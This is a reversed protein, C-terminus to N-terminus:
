PVKLTTSADAPEDQEIDALQEIGTKTGLVANPLFIVCILAIVAFPISILFVEGVGQGYASEVIDRVPDSLTDINPLAGETLGSASRAIGSEQLGNEIETDVRASLAAGLMTVGLVGGLSRFFAAASSAAGIERVDTANQVVLVLNQLLMGLALGVLPLALFLVVINTDVRLTSLLISAVTLLSAGTILWPKWHGTRSILGGVVTSAILNGAVQPLTILGAGTASAGRSLQMYQSIFIAVSYLVIGVCV